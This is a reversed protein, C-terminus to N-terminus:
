HSSTNVIAQFLPFCEDTNKVTNEHCDMHTIPALIHVQSNMIIIQESGSAHSDTEFGVQIAIM